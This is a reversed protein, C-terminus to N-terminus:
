DHYVSIPTTSNTKKFSRAVVRILVCQCVRGRCSARGTPISLPLVKIGGQGDPFYAFLSANTTAVIVDEADTMAGDFTLPPGPIPATPRTVDVIVLGDQKAAVYMYTRAVYLKRADALRVTGSPVPVPRDM